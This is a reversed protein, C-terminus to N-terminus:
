EAEASANGVASRGRGDVEPRWEQSPLDRLGEEQGHECWKERLIASGGDGHKPRAGGGGRKTAGDCWVKEPVAVLVMPDGLDCAGM